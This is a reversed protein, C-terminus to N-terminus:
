FKYKKVNCVLAIFKEQFFDRKQDIKIAIELYFWIKYTAFSPL